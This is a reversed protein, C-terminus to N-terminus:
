LFSKEFLEDCSPLQSFANFFAVNYSCKVESTFKQTTNRNDIFCFQTLCFQTLNFDFIKKSSYSIVFVRVTSLHNM